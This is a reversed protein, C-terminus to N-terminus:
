RWSEKGEGGLGGSVHLDGGKEGQGDGDQSDGLGGRHGSSGMGIAMGNRQSTTLVKSVVSRGLDALQVGAVRLELDLGAGGSTDGQGIDARIELVVSGDIDSCGGLNELQVKIGYSAHFKHLRDM